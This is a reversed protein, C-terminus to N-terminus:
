GDIVGLSGVLTRQDGRQGRKRGGGCRLVVQHELLSRAAPLVPVQVSHKLPVSRKFLVM